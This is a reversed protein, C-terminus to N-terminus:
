LMATELHGGSPSAGTSLAASPAWLLLLALIGFVPINVFGGREWIPRGDGQVILDAWTLFFMMPFPSAAASAAAGLIRRKLDFARM